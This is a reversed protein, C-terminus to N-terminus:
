SSYDSGYWDLFRSRVGNWIVDSVLSTFGSAPFLTDPEVMWVNFWQALLLITCNHLWLLTRGLMILLSFNLDQNSAVAQLGFSHFQCYDRALLSLTVIEGTLWLSVFRIMAMQLILYTSSPLDRKGRFTRSLFQEYDRPPLSPTGRKGTLWLSMLLDQGDHIQFLASLAIRQTNLQRTAYHRHSALRWGRRNTAPNKDWNRWKGVPWM